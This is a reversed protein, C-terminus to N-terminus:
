PLEYHDLLDLVLFNDGRQPFDDTIFINSVHSEDM